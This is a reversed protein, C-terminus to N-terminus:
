ASLLLFALYFQPLMAEIVWSPFSCLAPCGGVNAREYGASPFALAAAPRVGDPGATHTGPRATEM